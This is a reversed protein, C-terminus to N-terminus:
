RVGRSVLLGCAGTVSDCGANGAALVARTGPIGEIDFVTSGESTSTLEM